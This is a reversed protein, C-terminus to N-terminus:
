PERTREIRNNSPLAGIGWVLLPLFGMLKIADFLTVVKIRFPSTGFRGVVGPLTTLSFIVVSIALAVWVGRRGYLSYIALAVPLSALLVAFTHVTVMWTLIGSNRSPFLPGWWSPISLAAAHATAEAVLWIYLWALGVGLAVLVIRNIM